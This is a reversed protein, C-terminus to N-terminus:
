APRQPRKRAPARTDASNASRRSSSARRAEPASATDATAEVVAPQARHGRFILRHAIALIFGGLVAGALGVVLRTLAEIGATATPDITVSDLTFVILAPALISPDNATVPAPVFILALLICELVYALDRWLYRWLVWGALLSFVVGAGIYISWALKYSAPDV